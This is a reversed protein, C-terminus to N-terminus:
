RIGIINKGYSGGTENIGYSNRNVVQGIVILKQMNIEKVSETM